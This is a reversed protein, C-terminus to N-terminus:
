LYKILKNIAKKVKDINEYNEFRKHKKFYLTSYHVKIKKFSYEGDSIINFYFGIEFFFYANNIFRYDYHIGKYNNLFSASDQIRYGLMVATITLSDFLELIDKPLHADIFEKHM